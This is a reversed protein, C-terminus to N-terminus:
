NIQKLLDEFYFLGSSKEYIFKAAKLSGKALSNKNLTRHTFEIEENDSIFLITHNGYVGGGRISSIGVENLNRPEDSKTRDFVPKVEKKQKIIEFIKLATGSPADKKKRHHQEIIEIDFDNFKDIMSSILSFFANIGYSMNPSYFIPINKSADKMLNITKDSLKTTGIVLKKKNKEAFSIINYTNLDHSFDLIVDSNLLTDIKNSHFIKTSEYQFYDNETVKKIPEFLSTVIFDKEEKLINLISSNMQGLSGSFGLKIKSNEDM